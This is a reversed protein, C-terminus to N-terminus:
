KRILPARNGKVTYPLRAIAELIEQMSRRIEEVDYGQEECDALFEEIAEDYRNKHATNRKKWNIGAFAPLIKTNIPLIGKKMWLAIIPYGPYHQWVTANDNSSAEDDHFRVTYTKAYDSSDVLAEQEKLMIRDDALASCAEYVKALPPLKEM